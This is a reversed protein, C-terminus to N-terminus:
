YSIDTDYIANKLRNFVLNIQNGADRELMGAVKALGEFTNRTTDEFKKRIIFRIADSFTVISPDDYQFDYDSTFNLAILWENTERIASFGNIKVLNEIISTKSFKTLKLRGFNLYLNGHQTSVIGDSDIFFEDIQDVLVSLNNYLKNSVIEGNNKLVREFEKRTKVGVLVKKIAKSRKGSILENYSAEFVSPPPNNYLSLTISLILQNIDETEIGEASEIFQTLKPLVHKMRPLFDEGSYNYKLIDNGIPQILLKIHSSKSTLTKEIERYLKDFRKNLEEDVKTLDKQLQRIIKELKKDAKKPIEGINLAEKKMVNFEDTLVQIRSSALEAIDILIDVIHDGLDITRLYSYTPPSLDLTGLHKLSLGKEIKSLLDKLLKEVQARWKRYEKVITQNYRRLVAFLCANILSKPDRMYKIFYDLNIENFPLITDDELVISGAVEMFKYISIEKKSSNVFSNNKANYKYVENNYTFKTKNEIINSMIFDDYSPTTLNTSYVQEGLIKLFGFLTSAIKISKGRQNYLDVLNELVYGIKNDVVFFNDTVIKTLSSVIGFGAANSLLVAEEISNVQLNTITKSKVFRSLERSWTQEIGELNKIDKSLEKSSLFSQTFAILMDMATQSLSVDGMGEIFGDYFAKIFQKGDEPVKDRIGKYIFTGANEVKLDPLLENFKSTILNVKPMNLIQIPDNKIVKVYARRVFERQLQREVKHLDVVSIKKLFKDVKGGMEKRLLQNILDTTKFSIGKLKDNIMNLVVKQEARPNKSYMLLDPKQNALSFVVFDAIGDTLKELLHEKLVGQDTWLDDNKEWGDGLMEEIIDLLAENNAFVEKINRKYGESLQRSKTDLNRETRLITCANLYAQILISRPLRAGSNVLDTIEGFQTLQKGLNIVLDTILDVFKADVVKGKDTSVIYSMILNISNKQDIAVSFTGYASNEVSGTMFQSNGSGSAEISIIDKLAMLTSAILKPDTSSSLGGLESITLGFGSQVSIWTYNDAM